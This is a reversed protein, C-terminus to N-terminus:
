FVYKLAFQLIRPDLASRIQGLQASAASTFAAPLAAGGAAGPRFSNTVSFAEGRVELRQSETVRFARSLAMDFSYTGPFVLNNRHYNGMNGLAPVKLAAQNLWNSLPGGAGPTYAQDNPLV